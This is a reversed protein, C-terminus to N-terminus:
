HVGRQNDNYLRKVASVLVSMAISANGRLLSSFESHGLVWVIMDDDAVVTATRPVDAIMALEGFFDGQGLTGIDAGDRKVTARGQEIIMFDHGSKGQEALVEGAKVRISTLLGSIEKLQKKSCESFIPIRAMTEDIESRAM